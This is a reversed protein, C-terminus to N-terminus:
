KSECQVQDQPVPVQVMREERGRSGPEGAHPHKQDRSVARGAAHSNRDLPVTPLAAASEPKREADVLAQATQVRGAIVVVTRLGM